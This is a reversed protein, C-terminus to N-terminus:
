LSAPYDIIRRIGLLLEDPKYPKNIFGAAGAKILDKTQQPISYGSTILVKVNNNISLLDILCRKGGMGPMNLDMIVLSIKDKQANYVELAQEGNEATVVEYGYSSLTEKGIELINPEDDVFLITETGYPSQQPQEEIKQPPKGSTSAPFIIKFTTGKDPKSECYIFGDHNKVIGHVVSLGLGTGKGAEKTTFFPEFIRQVVDKEMGCGTDAVSFEIYNGSPINIGAITTNEQLTINKTSINITGNDGIADRANIVLNMIIQGIQTSDASIPFIKEDLNTKIEMMKPISKMLLNQMSKIEDNINIITSLTEVKGSFLMLQKVLERSRQILDGIRNLYLMDTENGSRGSIMLQNYGMIAQIINNFDHAIGGTLTGIAEMKSAQMLQDEMSRLISIDKLTGVVGIVKGEADLDPAGTFTIYRLVGEKNLMIFNKDRITLKDDIITQFIHDFAAREEERMFDTLNKDLLEDWNYGLVEECVPNIYKIRRNIDLQYIIDPSNDSLNRFREESEKMKKHALANNLSIGIQPAIGMLLNLNSQTPKNESSTHDVALIGESKGEYIIPVCVFSEIRFNKIFTITKESFYDKIENVNSILFPKQDRYALYFIGKSQPNTLNFDMNKLLTEEEPTYGYGTTYLLKTKEPNALMIMGRSFQMRKQLADAIFSFLKKSELISSTAESIEKILTLENYRSEFQTIYKESIYQQSEISRNLIGVGIKESILFAALSIVCTILFFFLSSKLTLFGTMLLVLLSILGFLSLYSGILKWIMAPNTKWSVIYRCYPDGKHICEFHEVQSYEKTFIKSLGEILGIRNECQYRKESVGENPTAILEIKNSSLNSSKFTIHKSIASAIKEMVWFAVSPTVFGIIYQKLAAYSQSQVAFRGVERALNPNGTEKELIEYFRDIQDQTFWQGADSIEMDSISAYKLIEDINIEPYRSSVYEVFVLLITSNYLQKSEMM